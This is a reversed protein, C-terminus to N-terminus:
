SSRRRGILIGLTLAALPILWQRNEQTFRSAQRGAEAASEPTAERAEGAKGAVTERVEAAKETVTAKADSVAQKAQGKVDAKAALAEVTDGLEARTEEIEARVQEASRDQSGSDQTEASV